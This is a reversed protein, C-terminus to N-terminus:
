KARTRRQIDAPFNKFYSNLLLSPAASFNCITDKTVYNSVQRLDTIVSPTAKGERVLELLENIIKTGNRCALCKRCTEKKYFKSFNLIAEFVKDIDNLVIVSATGLGTGIQRLYDYDMLMHECQEKNCIGMSPGGPFVAVLSDWGGIVGGHTEILEKLPISLREEYVNPQRVDGSICFLKTGYNNPSGLSRFWEDGNELICPINAITEVNNVATACGFVGHETPFPPRVRPKAAKGELSELLATEEGSIYNGEGRHIFIDLSFDTGLINKGLYGEEYAENIAEQLHLAEKYYEARVSIYCASAGIAKASMISGEIVTHPVSALLYRDKFSGPEGESANVVLYRMPHKLLEATAVVSEWKRGTYFGSGGRGRLMSRSITNILIEGKKKLIDSLKSYRGQKKAFAISRAVNLNVNPFIRCM